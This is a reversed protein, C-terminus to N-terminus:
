RLREAVAAALEGGRLSPVLAGEYQLVTLTSKADLQALVADVRRAQALAGADEEGVFMHVPMTRFDRLDGDDWGDWSLSSVVTLSRFYSRSMQSFTTAPRCGGAFGFVHFKGGAIEHERKM